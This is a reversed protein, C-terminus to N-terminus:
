IMDYRKVNTGSSDFSKRSSNRNDSEAEVIGNWENDRVRNGVRYEAM